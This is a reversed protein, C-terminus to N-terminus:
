SVKADPRLGEELQASGGRAEIEARLHSGGRLVPRLVPLMRSWAQPTRHAPFQLEVAAAAAAAAVTVTEPLVLPVPTLIPRSTCAAGARM